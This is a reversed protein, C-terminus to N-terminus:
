TKKNNSGSAAKGYATAYASVGASKKDQKPKKKEKNSRAQGKAMDDEEKPRYNTPSEPM